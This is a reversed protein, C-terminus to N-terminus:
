DPPLGRVSVAPFATQQGDPTSADVVNISFDGAVPSHEGVIFDCTMLRGPGTYGAGFAFAASLRRECDICTADDIPPIQNTAFLANVGTGLSCKVSGAHFEDFRGVAGSFVIDFQLAGLQVADDLWIQVPAVDGASCESGECPLTTTTTVTTTTTSPWGNCAVHVDASVANIDAFAPGTLHISGPLSTLTSGDGEFLCEFLDAPTHLSLDDLSQGMAFSLYLERHEGQACVDDCGNIAATRTAGQALGRCRASGREGFNGTVGSYDFNIDALDVDAEAPYSITVVCRDSTIPTDLEVSPANGSGGGGDGCGSLPLLACFVLVPVSSRLRAAITPASIM